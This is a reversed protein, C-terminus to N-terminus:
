QETITGDNYLRFTPIDDGRTGIVEVYEETLFVWVVKDLGKEIQIRQIAKKERILKELGFFEIEYDSLEYIEILDEMIESTEPDDVYTEILRDIFQAALEELRARSIYNQETKQRFLDVANALGRMDNNWYGITNDWQDDCEMSKHRDLNRVVAYEAYRTNTKREILAVNGKGEYYIDILTYEM